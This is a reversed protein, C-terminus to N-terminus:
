KIREWRFNVKGNNCDYFRYDGKRYIHAIFEGKFPVSYNVGVEAIIYSKERNYNGFFASLIAHQGATIKM